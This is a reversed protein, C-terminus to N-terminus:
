RILLFAWPLIAVALYFLTLLAVLTHIRKIHLVMGFGIAILKTGALGAGLGAHAVASSVIPNGEISPGFLRIGFYTFLGDLFQVCFFSIVMVDGFRSRTTDWPKYFVAM